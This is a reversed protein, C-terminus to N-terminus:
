IVDNMIKAARKKADPDATAYVNLTIDVNKHGLNNAVTEVDVGAAIAATAWSHRLDHFTIYREQTGKLNILHAFIRWEKTIVEPSTFDSEVGALVYKSKSKQTKKWDRLTSLLREPVYIIRGDDTKTGYKVQLEGRTVMITRNVTIEHTSFNIASWQLGCIEGRRMGTFLAIYAATTLRNQEMSELTKLLKERGNKTLANIGKKVNERKPAAVGEVPNYVLEQAIVKKRFASKLFTHIKNCYLTSIGERALQMEMHEIDSASVDEIQYEGIIPVIQAMLHTYGEYTGKTIIGLDRKADIYEQLMEAVTQSEYRGYILDRQYNLEMQMQWDALEKKQARKGTEHLRKYKTKYKGNQKYRLAGYSQGNKVVITASTYM